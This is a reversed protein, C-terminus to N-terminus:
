NKKIFVPLFDLFTLFFPDPFLLDLPALTVQLKKRGFCNGLQFQPVHLLSPPVPPLGHSKTSGVGLFSLVGMILFTDRKWQLVM